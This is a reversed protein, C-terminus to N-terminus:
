APTRAGTTNALPSPQNTPQHSESGSAPPVTPAQAPPATGGTAPLLHADAWAQIEELQKPHNGSLSLEREHEATWDARRELQALHIWAPDGTEPQRQDDPDLEDIARRREARRAAEAQAAPNSRRKKKKSRPPESEVSEHPNLPHELKGTSVGVKGTSVEHQWLSVQIPESEPEPQDSRQGTPLAKYVDEIALDVGPGGGWKTYQKVLQLLVPKGREAPGMEVIGRSSLEDLGKLVQPATLGTLKGLQVRTIRVHDSFRGYTAATIAMLLRHERDNLSTRAIAILLETSVRVFQEPQPNGVWRRASM